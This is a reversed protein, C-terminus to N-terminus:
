RCCYFSTDEIHLLTVSGEQGYLGQAHTVRGCGTAEQSIGLMIYSGQSNSSMQEKWDLQAM